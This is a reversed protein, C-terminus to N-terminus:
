RLREPVRTGTLGRVLPEPIGPSNYTADGSLEDGEIELEYSAEIHLDGMAITVHLVLDHGSVSGSVEAEM